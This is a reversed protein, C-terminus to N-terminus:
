SNKLPAMAAELLLGFNKPGVEFPRGNAKIFVKHFPTAV